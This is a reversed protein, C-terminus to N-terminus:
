YKYTLVNQWSDYTYTFVAAASAGYLTPLTVKVVNQYQDLDYIIEGGQPTTKKTRYKYGSGPASFYNNNSGGGAYSVNARYIGSGAHVYTFTLVKSSDNDYKITTFKGGSDYTYEVERLTTGISDKHAIHSLRGSDYSLHIVADGGGEVVRAIKGVTDYEYSVVRGSSIDTVSEPYGYTDYAVEQVNGSPDTLTLLKGDTDFEYAFNGGKEVSEPAGANTLTYGGTTVSLTAYSKPQAAPAGSTVGYDIESGDADVVYWHNSSVGKRTVTANLVAIGYTFAANGMATTRLPFHTQSNLHINNVLPFGRTSVPDPDGAHANGSTLDIDACSGGSCYHEGCSNGAYTDPEQVVVEATTSNTTGENDTVVLEVHYLGPITATFTNSGIGVGTQVSGDPKTVAWTAACIGELAGSGNQNDTDYSINTFKVSDGLDPYGKSVGGVTPGTMITTPPSSGITVSISGDMEAIDHFVSSGSPIVTAGATTPSFGSPVSYSVGNVVSSHDHDATSTSSCSLNYHRTESSGGSGSGVGVVSFDDATTRPLNVSANGGGVISANGSSITTVDISPGGKALLTIEYSASPSCGQNALAFYGDATAEGHFSLSNGSGSGSRIVKCVRTGNDATGEEYWSSADAIGNIQFIIDPPESQAYVSGPFCGCLALFVTNFFVFIPRSLVLRFM